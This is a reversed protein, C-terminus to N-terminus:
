HNPEIVHAHGMHAIPYPLPAPRGFHIEFWRQQFHALFLKVAYRRARAHVHAPPLMKIGPRDPTADIGVMPSKTTDIGCYMGTLWKKAFTDDGFNKKELSATALSSFEGALNKRWEQAKRDAFIKSYYSNENAQLKVFSEGILYTLRKLDANWPRKQGKEWVQGPVIGAYSWIHGATPAKEIDIHAILGAAIVDGIGCTATLWPGIEHKSVFRGLARKIQNELTESQDALWGFVSHPEAIKAMERIQAHVRIRQDQMQYYLDVLFRAEQTTMTEAAKALDRSLRTVSSFDQSAEVTM